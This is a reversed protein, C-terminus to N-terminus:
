DKFSKSSNIKIYNGIINVSFVIADGFLKAVYEISHLFSIMTFALFTMLLIASTGFM